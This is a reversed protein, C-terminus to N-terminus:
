GNEEKRESVADLRALAARLPAWYRYNLVGTVNDPSMSSPGNRLRLLERAAEVVERLAERERAAAELQQAQEDIRAQLSDREDLFHQVAGYATKFHDREAELREIEAAQEAVQERLANATAQSPILNRRAISNAKQLREIKGLAGRLADRYTKIGGFVMGVDYDGVSALERARAEDWGTQADRPTANDPNSM